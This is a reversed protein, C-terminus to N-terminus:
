HFIELFAHDNPGTTTLESPLKFSSVAAIEARIYQLRTEESDRDYWWRVHASKYNAM